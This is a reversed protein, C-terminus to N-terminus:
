PLRAERMRTLCTHLGHYHSCFPSLDFALSASVLWEQLASAPIIHVDIAGIILSLTRYLPLEASV